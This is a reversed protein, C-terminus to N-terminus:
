FKNHKIVWNAEDKFAYVLAPKFNLHQKFLFIVSGRFIPMYYLEVAQLVM